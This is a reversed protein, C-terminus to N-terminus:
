KTKSYMMAVVAAGICGGNKIGSLNIKKEDFGQPGLIERLVKNMLSAYKYFSHYISGDIAIKIEREIEKYSGCQLQILSAIAAAFLQASRRSFKKVLEQVTRLDAVTPLGNESFKYNQKLVKLIIASNYSRDSCM